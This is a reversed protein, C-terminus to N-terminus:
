HNQFVILIQEGLYKFPPLHNISCEIKNLIKFAKAPLREEPKLYPPPLLFPLALCKRITFFNQSFKKIETISYYRATAEREKGEFTIYGWGRLRKKLYNTVGLTFFLFDGWYWRNIISAIFYSGPKLVTHLKQFFSNIDTVCNLVGFSAYAGDFKVKFSDVYEAPLNIFKPIREAPLNEIKSIRYSAIKLMEPSIDILTLNCGHKIMEIAETGTGCGIELINQGPQFFSKLIKLNIARLYKDNKRKEDYFPAYFNWFTKNNEFKM